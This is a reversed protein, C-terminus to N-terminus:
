SKKCVAEPTCINAIFQNYILTLNSLVQEQGDIPHLELQQRLKEPTLLTLCQQSIAVHSIHWPESAVGGLDKAYPFFFGFQSLHQQLWRYFPAQHGSLYEWPELKLTQDAPLLNRAFVDFDCGWHHRSAGPLASWRLIAWMKEEDTLTKKDIPQSLHDLIPAGGSFKANWITQQRQFDRFGSAIELKFGAAQAACLLQQLDEKVRPHILFSKEGVVVNDLHSHTNGTLQELTM